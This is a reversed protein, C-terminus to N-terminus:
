FDRNKNFILKPLNKGNRPFKSSTETLRKMLKGHIEYFDTLSVAMLSSGGM